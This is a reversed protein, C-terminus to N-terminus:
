PNDVKEGLYKRLFLSNREEGLLKRDAESFSIGGLDKWEIWKFDAHENLMVHGEKIKCLFPILQIRKFGYDYAVPVLPKVVAIEVAIEEMIERRICTEASEGPHIKGGPFEWLFPHETDSGRQTILLKGNQVIIACTVKIM